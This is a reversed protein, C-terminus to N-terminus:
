NILTVFKVFGYIFFINIIGLFTFMNSIGLINLLYPSILNGIPFGIAWVLYISFFKEM